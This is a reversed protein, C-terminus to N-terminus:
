SVIDSRSGNGTAPVMGNTTALPPNPNATDYIRFSFTGGPTSNTTLDADFMTWEYAVTQRTPIWLGSGVLAEMPLSRVLARLKGSGSANMVIIISLRPPRPGSRGKPWRM